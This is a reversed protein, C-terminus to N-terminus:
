SKTVNNTAIISVEDDTESDYEDDDSSYPSPVGKSRLLQLFNAPVQYGLQLVSRGGYTLANVNLKICETLLYHMLREDGRQVAYHLATYGSKGERSNIDAGYWVLHRLVDVHGNIAAM